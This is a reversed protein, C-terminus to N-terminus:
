TVTPRPRLRRPVALCCPSFTPSFGRGVDKVAAGEVLGVEVRSSLDYVAEGDAM